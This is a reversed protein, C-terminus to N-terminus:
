RRRAAPRRVVRFGRTRIKSRNGATDIARAALRYRGPPLIRRGFRATLRLRNIGPKGARSLVRIRRWRVCRRAKRRLLRRTRRNPKACRAKGRVQVRVGRLARQIVFVTRAAESLRYSLISGRGRKGILLRGPALQLGWLKPAVTDVEPGPSPPDSGEDEEEGDGDAGDGPPPPAFEYAGIDVGEGQIRAEGLVGLLGFVETDDGADITPSGALQQFDGNEPDVFLPQEEQDAGLTHTEQGPGGFFAVSGYNSNWTILDAEGDAHNARIQLDGTEGRAITNVLELESINDGVALGAGRASFASPAGTAYLTSNIVVSEHSSNFGDNLAVGFTPADVVYCLSDALLGGHIFCAYGDDTNARVRAATGNAVILAATGSNNLKTVDLDSVLADPGGLVLGVEGDIVIHARNELSAGYMYVDDPVDVRSGRNYTGPALEVEDGAIAAALASDLACPNGQNECPAAGAGAPAAYRTAAGASAALMLLAAIALLLALM